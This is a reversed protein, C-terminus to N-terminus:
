FNIADISKDTKYHVFMFTSNQMGGNNGIKNFLLPTQVPRYTAQGKGGVFGKGFKHFGGIFYCGHDFGTLGFHPIAYIM